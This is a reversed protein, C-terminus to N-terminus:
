KWVEDGNAGRLLPTRHTDQTQFNLVPASARRERWPCPPQGMHPIRNYEELLPSDKGVDGTAWFGGPSEQRRGRLGPADEPLGFTVRSTSRTPSLSRSPSESSDGARVGDETLALKFYEFRERLWPSYRDIIEKIADRPVQVLEVRTECRASYKFKRPNGSAWDELPQWLCSEGFCAPAEVTKSRIKMRLSRSSFNNAGVSFDPLERRDRQRWGQQILHAARNERMDQERLKDRATQFAPHQSIEVPEDTTTSPSAKDNTAAVSNLIALLAESAASTTQPNAQTVNHLTQNLSMRVRGFVLLYVSDIAEGVSCVYDGLSLFVSSVKNALDMMCADYDVVFGLCPAARLVKGYIHNCLEKRLVPSLESMVDDEFAAFGKNAEWQYILHERLSKGLAPPLRRWNLYQSLVRKKEDFANREAHLSGILDTLTGMLGAFVVSALLLLFLVFCVEAYNKAVIDGYGVTTMTTLTFYLSYIYHEMAGRGLLHQVELWGPDDSEVSGMIYWACAAWHTIGCVMMLVKGLGSVFILAPNSEIVAEVARKVENDAWLRFLRMIRAFRAFRVMRIGKALQGSCDMYLLDWPISSALDPLLWSMLYAKAIKGPSTILEGSKADVYAVVFNLPFDMMFYADSVLAIGFFLGEPHIDFAAYVPLAFLLYILLVAGMAQWLLLYHNDPHLIYRPKEDEFGFSGETKRVPSKGWRTLARRLKASRTGSVQSCDDVELGQLMVADVASPSLAYSERRVRERSRKTRPIDEPFLAEMRQTEMMRTDMRTRRSPSLAESKDGCLEELAKRAGVLAAEAALVKDYCKAIAGENSM